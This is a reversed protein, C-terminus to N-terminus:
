HERVWAKVMSFKLAFSKACYFAIISKDSGHFRDVTTRIILKLSQVYKEEPTSKTLTKCDVKILASGLLVLLCQHSSQQKTSKPDENTFAAQLVNTFNVGSTWYRWAWHPWSASWHERMVTSSSLPDKVLWVPRWWCCVIQEVLWLCWYPKPL